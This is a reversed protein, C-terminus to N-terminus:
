YDFPRLPCLWRCRQVYWEVIVNLVSLARGVSSVSDVHVLLPLGHGSVTWLLDPYKVRLLNMIVADASVKGNLVFVQRVTVSLAEHFIKAERM